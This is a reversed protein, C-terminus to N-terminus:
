GEKKIDDYRQQQVSIAIASSWCAGPALRQIMPKKELDGGTDSLDDIGFWPEIAVFPAGPGGWLGFCPAQHSVTLHLARRPSVLSIRAGPLDDFIWAGKRFLPERNYLRGNEFPALEKREILLFQNNFDLRHAGAQTVGEIELWDGEGWYFAPHYGLSFLMDLTGTNIVECRNILTDEELDYTVYLLFPFPYHPRTLASDRLCFRLTHAEQYELAFESECAFGHKALDYRTGQYWYGGDKLGGVVPFLIPACGTWGAPSGQWLIEQGLGKDFIKVLEAGLTDAVVTLRENGITYRM